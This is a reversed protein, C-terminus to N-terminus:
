VILIGGGFSAAIFHFPFGLNIRIVPNSGTVEQKWPLSAVVAGCGHITGLGPISGSLVPTKNDDVEGHKGM